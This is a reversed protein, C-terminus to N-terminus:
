KISNLKTSAQKLCASIYENYLLTNDILVVVLIVQDESKIDELDLMLSLGATSKELSFLKPNIPM